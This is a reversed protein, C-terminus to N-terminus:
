DWGGLDLDDDGFDEQGFDDQADHYGSGGDENPTPGTPTGSLSGPTEDAAPTAEAAQASGGSESSFMSSIANAALMGGTVGAATAMASRLFGGGREAGAGRQGAGARAGGGAGAAASWPSGTRPASSAPQTPRPRGAAPVSAPRAGGLLGGLFSGGGAAEAPAAHNGRQQLESVTQELQQIRQEQQQLAIDQVLATQVLMYPGDPLQRVSEDILAQAERDKEVAGQQRMREFLGSIMQREDPTM